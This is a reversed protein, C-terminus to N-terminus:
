LAGMRLLRLPRLGCAIVALGEKVLEGVPRPLHQVFQQLFVDLEPRRLELDRVDQLNRRYGGRCRSRSRRALEAPRILETPLRLVEAIARRRTLFVCPLFLLVLLFFSGFGRRLLQAADDLGRTVDHALILPEIAIEIAQRHEGPDHEELEQVVHLLHPPPLPARRCVSGGAM